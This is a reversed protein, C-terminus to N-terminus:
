CNAEELRTFVANTKEAELEDSEEEDFKGCNGFQRSPVFKVEWKLQYFMFTFTFFM